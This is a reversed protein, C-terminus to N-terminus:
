RRPLAALVSQLAQDLPKRDRYLVEGRGNYHRQEQRHRGHRAMAARLRRRAFPGLYHEIVDLESATPLRDHVSPLHLTTILRERIPSVADNYEKRRHRLLELRHGILFGLLFSAVPLGGQQVYGLIEQLLDSIM